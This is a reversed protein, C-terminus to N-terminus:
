GTIRASYAICIVLQECFADEYELIVHSQIRCDFRFAEIGSIKERRIGGLQRFSRALCAFGIRFRLASYGGPLFRTPCARLLSTRPVPRVHSTLHPRQSGRRPLLRKSRGPRSLPISAFDGLVQLWPKRAPFSIALKMAGVHTDARRNGGIQEHVGAVLQWRFKQLCSRAPMSQVMIRDLRKKRGLRQM